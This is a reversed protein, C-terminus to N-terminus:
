MPNHTAVQMIKCLFTIMAATIPKDTAKYIETESYMIEVVVFEGFLM